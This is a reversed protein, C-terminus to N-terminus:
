LIPVSDPLKDTERQLDAEGSRRVVQKPRVSGTMFPTLSSHLRAYVKGPLGLMDYFSLNQPSCASM